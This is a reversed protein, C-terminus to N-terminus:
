GGNGGTGSDRVKQLRREILRFLQVVDFPKEVYDDAGLQLGEIREFHTDRSTFMVVPVARTAPNTKLERLVDRGDLKPMSIDLIILDPTLSHAKALGEVGDAAEVVDFGAKKGVLSVM